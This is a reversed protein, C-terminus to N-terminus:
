FPAGKIYSVCAVVFLAEGGSSGGSVFIAFRAIAIAISALLCALLCICICICSAGTCGGRMQMKIRLIIVIFLIRLCIM